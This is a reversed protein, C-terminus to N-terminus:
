TSHLQGTALVAGTPAGTPSGGPPEDSVALVGQTNMQAILEPPLTITVPQDSPFVGLAIPKANPPILWLETARNPPLNVRATPTVVMRGRRVDVTATWHVLGDKRAISAVIYDGPVAATTPAPPTSQMRVLNVGLLVLAAVSAGAALWRWLRLSDQWRTRAPPRVPPTAFGLDARIRTWVREPPEMARIDDALPALRNQWADLTRQLGPDRSVDAELTARAEADLVGLAYEACRLDDDDAAPTNM